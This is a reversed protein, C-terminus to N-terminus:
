GQAPALRTSFFPLVQERTQQAMGSTHDGPYIQQNVEVGQERLQSALSNLWPHLYHEQDGCDLGIVM